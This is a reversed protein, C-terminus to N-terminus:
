RTIHITIHEGLTARIAARLPDRYTPQTSMAGHLFATEAWLIVAKKGIALPRLQGWWREVMADGHRAQLHELVAQWRADGPMEALQERAWALQDCADDGAFHQAVEAAKRDTFRVQAAAPDFPAKPKAVPEAAKGSETAWKEPILEAWYRMHQVAGRGKQLRGKLRERMVKRCFALSIGKAVLAEAVAVDRETVPQKHPSVDFLERELAHFASLIALAEKSAQEELPISASPQAQADGAKSFDNEFFTTPPPSDAESDSASERLSLNTNGGSLTVQHNSTTQVVATDHNNTPNTTTAAVATDHNNAALFSSLKDGKKLMEVNIQWHVTKGNGGKANKVPTILGCDRFRATVRQATRASSTMKKGLTEMSPYCSGGDDSAFDCLAILALKDNGKLDTDLAYGLLKVSM